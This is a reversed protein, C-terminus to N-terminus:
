KGGMANNRGKIADVQDKEFGRIEKNISVLETMLINLKDLKDSSASTADGGAAGGGSSSTTTASTVAGTGGPTKNLKELATQLEKIRDTLNKINDAFTKVGEAQKGLDSGIGKVSSVASVTNRISDSNITELDKASKIFDPLGGTGFLSSLIGGGALKSLAGAIDSMASAIGKLKNSDLEALQSLVVPVSKFGEVFSDIIKSIGQFMFGLGGAAFGFAALVLSVPTLVATLAAGVPGLAFGLAGIAVVVGGAGLLMKGWNDMAWEIGKLINTLPELFPLLDKVSNKMIEFIDIPKSDSGISAIQADIDAIQQELSVLMSGDANQSAASLSDRKAQLGEKSEGGGGLMGKFLNGVIPQLLKFVENFGTKLASILGGSKFAEIMKGFADGLGNALTDILDFIGGKSNDFQTAVDEIFKMLQTFASSGVVKNLVYNYVKTFLTGIQAIQAATKKNEAAQKGQVSNQDTEFKNTASVLRQQGQLLQSAAVQGDALGEVNKAFRENVQKTLGGIERQGLV